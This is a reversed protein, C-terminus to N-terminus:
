IRNGNEKKEETISSMEKKKRWHHQIKGKSIQYSELIMETEGEKRSIRYGIYSSIPRSNGITSLSLGFTTGYLIEDGKAEMRLIFTRMIYHSFLLYDPAKEILQPTIHLRGRNYQSKFYSRNQGSSTRFISGDTDLTNINLKMGSANHEPLAKVAELFAEFNQKMTRAVGRDQMLRSKEKKKEDLRKKLDEALKTYTVGSPELTMGYSGGLTIGAAYNVTELKQIVKQYNSDLDKIELDLLKLKQEIFGSNIEKKCLARYVVSFSKMIESEDRNLQWDRKIRYLLEMFSQEMSAETLTMATCTRGTQDTGAKGASSPCKWVAYSFTYVDRFDKEESPIEKEEHSREDRYKRITSNYTMRRMRSGCERCVLGHFPSAAPGYRRVNEAKEELGVEIEGESTKVKKSSIKRRGQKRLLLEQVQNWVNRDIIAPHHDKLLYQPYEGYNTVSKHTLYSETYTKQMRLDGVYKENRLVTLVGDARWIGGTVTPWHKENLEKAIANASIGQLFREYIYCVTVAQERNIVWCGDTCKDYGLMKHLNIHPKGSRFNKRIAWKINESISHSEEQAMSCYFTLFMESNANLTDINEREFYVGVPPRLRQLEHVCDLTDVTNRAFRSISKTIIYDIKGARSDEMMQNFRVRHKRSTGSKGEDAYIDVMEWGPRSSILTTYYSKQAAYSNQQSEEETSVRCYAAVRLGTQRRFQDKNQVHRKTAPIISVEKKLPMKDNIM